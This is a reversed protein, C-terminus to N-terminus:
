SQRVHNKQRRAQSLIVAKILADQHKAVDYSLSQPYDDSCKRYAHLVQPYITINYKEAIRLYFDYDEAHNPFNIEDYWNLEEGVSWRILPYGINCDMNILKLFITDPRRPMDNVTTLLRGKHDRVEYWCGIVAIDPNHDLYESLLKLRDPKSWDDSGQYCIYEPNFAKAYAIGSNRASAVGQNKPLTYIRVNEYQQAYPEIVQATNDTSGDNVIIFIFDKETQNLISQISERLMYSGIGREGNYVPMIVAIKCCRM